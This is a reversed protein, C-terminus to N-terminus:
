AITSPTGTTDTSDIVHADDAPVLPSVLRNSDLTDRDSM